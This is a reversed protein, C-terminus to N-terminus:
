TTGSAPWATTSIPATCTAGGDRAGRRDHLGTYVSKGPWVEGIWLNGDKRKLFYGKEQGQNFVYYSKDQAAVEPNAAADAAGAAQPQYKVGPDVIVVM